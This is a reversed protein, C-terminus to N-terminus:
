SQGMRELKEATERLEKAIADHRDANRRLGAVVAQIDVDEAEIHGNRPLVVRLDKLSKKGFNPCRLWESDTRAMMAALGGDQMLYRMDAEICNIIRTSLLRKHTVLWAQIENPEEM